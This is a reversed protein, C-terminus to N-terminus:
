VPPNPPVGTSPDRHTAAARECIITLAEQLSRVAVDAGIEALRAAPIALSDHASWLGVIITAAPYRRRLRRTLFKLHASFQSSLCSLCLVQVSDSASKALGAPSVSRWSVAEAGVGHKVLLTALISAVAEDLDSRTAICHVAGVRWEPPLDDPDMNPALSLASSVDVDEPEARLSEPLVKEALSTAREPIVDEYDELDEIVERVTSLLRSPAASDLTDRELDAQALVLAPLVVEDYYVSLPHHKLYAEAQDAAESPDGALLRQYFSVEPTLVPKDGLAVDLFQLQPVHRGLSALSATLPTSLLLGIPGWLWTWFTASVVIALASLGLHTGFFWPEVGYGLVLELTLFLAVTWVLMSWGPDIAISLVLPFVAAIVWGVYPVFRLAMMLIGWLIPNPVGIVWLGVCIVIGAIANVITQAVLFRSLREAAETIAQTTRHLDRTGMLRILRDRLDERQLLIFIAFIIVLGSTAIPSILPGIVSQIVELPGPPPQQIRVPVPQPEATPATSGPPPAPAPQKIESRLDSLLESVREVLGTGAATEQVSRLKGRITYEYQPLNEGLNTLQHTIVAGLGFIVLFALVVVVLVSSIRGVHWRRLLTVGPALVFSLLLALAVPVLVDRGFYLVAIVAACIALVTPGSAPKGAPPM